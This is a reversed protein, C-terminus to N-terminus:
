ENQCPVCAACGIHALFVILAVQKAYCSKGAPSCPLETLAPCQAQATTMQVMLLTGDPARRLLQAGHHGANCLATNMGDPAHM